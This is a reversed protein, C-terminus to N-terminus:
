HTARGTGTTTPGTQTTGSEATMGERVRLNNQVHRVGSVNEALEEARRRAARSDVTGTLTVECKSVTVEIDSADVHWDDTLRDNIDERIREDSRVYGRPGRGYHGYGYQRTEDMRRRREAEEDGMWSRVEDKTRDWWGRDDGYGESSRYGPYDRRYDERGYGSGYYSSSGTYRDRDFDSGRWSGYGQGYGGSYRGLGQRYRREYDGSYGYRDRDGEARGYMGYGGMGYSTPRDYDRGYWDQGYSSGYSSGPGYDYRGYRTRDEDWRRWPQEEGWRESAM